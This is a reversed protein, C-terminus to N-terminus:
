IKIGSINKYATDGYAELLQKVNDRQLELMYEMGTKREREGRGQKELKDCQEMLQLFRENNPSFNALGPDNRSDELSQVGATEVKKMATYWTMAISSARKMLEQYEKWEQKSLEKGSFYLQSATEREKLKRKVSTKTVGEDGYLKKNAFYQKVMDNHTARAKIKKPRVIKEKGGESYTDLVKEYELGSSQIRTIQKNYREIQQELVKRLDKKRMRQLEDYGYIKAKPM